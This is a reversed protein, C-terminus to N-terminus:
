SERIEYDVCLWRNLLQLAKQTADSLRM